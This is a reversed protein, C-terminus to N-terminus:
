KGVELTGIYTRESHIVCWFVILSGGQNRTLKRSYDRSISVEVFIFLFPFGECFTSVRPPVNRHFGVFSMATALAHCTEPIISHHSLIILHFHWKCSVHWEYKIIQCALYVRSLPVHWCEYRKLYPSHHPMRPHWILTDVYWPKRSTSSSFNDINWHQYVGHYVRLRAMHNILHWFRVQSRRHNYPMPSTAPRPPWMGQRIAFDLNRLQIYIYINKGSIANGM